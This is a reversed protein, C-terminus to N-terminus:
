EPVPYIRVNDINFTTNDAMSIELRVDDALSWDFNPDSAIAGNYYTSDTDTVFHFRLNQWLTPSKSLRNKPSVIYNGSTQDVLKVELAEVKEGTNQWDFEVVYRIGKKFTGQKIGDPLLRIATWTATSTVELGYLTENANDYRNADETLAITADGTAMVWDPATGDNFHGNAGKVLNRQQNFRYPVMKVDDFTLSKKGSLQIAIEEAPDEFFSNVPYDVTHLVQSRVGRMTSYEAPYVNGNASNKVLLVANTYLGTDDTSESQWSVYVNDDETIQGQKIGAPTLRIAADNVLTEVGFSGTYAGTANIATGDVGGLQQVWGNDFAGSEFTGNKVLNVDAGNIMLNFTREESTLTGDTVKYTFAFTESQGKDIYLFAYPDVLITGDDNVTIGFTDAEPPTVIDIVEMVDGDFDLVGELLDFTIIDDNAKVTKELPGSFEPANFLDAGKIVFTATRATSNDANGDTVFFNYTIIGEEGKVLQDAFVSPDFTLEFNTIRDTVPDRIIETSTFSIAENGNMPQMVGDYSINSLVGQVGLAENRYSTDQYHVYYGELDGVQRAFSENHYIDADFVGALLDVTVKDGKESVEVRNPELTVKTENDLKPSGDANLEIFEPASNEGVVQTYLYHKTSNIGDTIDYSINVVSLENEFLVPIFESPTVRLVTQKLDFGYLIEDTRPLNQAKRIIETDDFTLGTQGIEYGLSTLIPECIEPYNAATVITDRCNPGSWVFQVNTVTLNDNEPDTFGKLLDIDYYGINNEFKESEQFSYQLQMVNKQTVVDFVEKMTSFETELIDTMSLVPAQNNKDAANSSSGSDCGALATLLTPLVWYKLQFKM